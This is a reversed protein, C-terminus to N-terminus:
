LAVEKAFVVNDRSVYLAARVTHQYRFDPVYVVWVNGHRDFGGVEGEQWRGYPGVDGGLHLGDISYLSHRWLIKDGVRLVDRAMMRVEM